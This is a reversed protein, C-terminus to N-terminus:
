VDEDNSYYDEEISYNKDCTFVHCPDICNLNNTICICTDIKCEKRCDCPLLQLIKKLAPMLSIWKTELNGDTAKEWVLGATNAAMQDQELSRKWIVSQYKVRKLHNNLPTKAICKGDIKDNGESYLQQRFIAHVINFGIFQIVTVTDFEYSNRIFLVPNSLENVNVHFFM